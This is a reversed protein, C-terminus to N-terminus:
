SRLAQRPRSPILRLDFRQQGSYILLEHFLEFKYKLNTM